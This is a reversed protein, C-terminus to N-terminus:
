GWGTRSPFAAALHPGHRIAAVHGWPLHYAGAGGGRGGFRVARPPVRRAQWGTVELDTEFSERRRHRPNRVVAIDVHGLGRTRRGGDPEGHPHDGRRRGIGALMGRRVAAMPFTSHGHTSPFAKDAPTLVESGDLDAIGLAELILAEVFSVIPAKATAPIAVAEPTRKLFGPDTMRAAGGAARIDARVRELAMVAVADGRRANEAQEPTPSAWCSGGKLM